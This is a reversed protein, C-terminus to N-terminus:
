KGVVPASSATEQQRSAFGAQELLVLIINTLDQFSGGEGIYQDYLEYVEQEKIKPMTPLLAGWLLTLLTGFEELNSLAAFIGRGLKREVQVMSAASLRLQYEKEGVQWSTYVM